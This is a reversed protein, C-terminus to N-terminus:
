QIDAFVQDSYAVDVPNHSTVAWPWSTGRSSNQGYPVRNFNQTGLEGAAAPGYLEVARVREECSYM